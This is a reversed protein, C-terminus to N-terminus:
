FNKEISDNSPLFVFPRELDLQLGGKSTVKSIGSSRTALPPRAPKDIDENFIVFVAEHWITQERNMDAAFVLQFDLIPTATEKGVLKLIVPVMDVRDELYLRAEHEGCFGDRWRRYPVLSLNHAFKRVHRFDKALKTARSSPKEEVMQCYSDPSAISPVPRTM